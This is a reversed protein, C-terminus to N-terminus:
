SLQQPFYFLCLFLTCNRSLLPGFNFNVSTISLPPTGPGPTLVKPRNEAACNLTGRDGGPQTYDGRVLDAIEQDGAAAELESINVRSIRIVESHKDSTLQTHDWCHTICTGHQATTHHVWSWFICLSLLIRRMIFVTWTWVSKLVKLFFQPIMGCQEVVLYKIVEM